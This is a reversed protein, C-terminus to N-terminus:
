EEGSAGITSQLQLQEIRAEAQDIESLDLANEPKKKLSELIKKGEKQMAEHEEEKRREEYAM